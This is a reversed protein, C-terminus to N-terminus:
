VLCTSLEGTSEGSLPEFGRLEVFFNGSLMNNDPNKQPKNEFLCMLLKNQESIKWNSKKKNEGFSLLAIPAMDECRIRM